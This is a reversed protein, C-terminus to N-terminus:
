TLRELIKCRAPCGAVTPHRGDEHRGHALPLAALFRGHPGAKMAHLLADLLHHIHLDLLLHMVDLRAQQKRAVVPEAAGKMPRKPVTQPM